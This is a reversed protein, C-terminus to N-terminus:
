NIDDKISDISEVSAAEGLTTGITECLSENFAQKSPEELIRYIYRMDKDMVYFLNIKLINRNYAYLIPKELEDAIKVLDDINKVEYTIKDQDEPLADVAVLRSSHQTLIKQIQKRKLDLADPQTTLIWLGILLAVLLVIGAIMLRMSTPNSPLPVEVVDKLVETTIGEGEKLISFYPNGLPIVLTSTIPQTIPGYATDAVMEGEISIRLEVPLNVKSAEIIAKALTNYQHYDIFVVKQLECLDQQEFSTNPVLEFNKTWIDKKEEQQINYGAMQATIGYHGKVKAAESGKFNIKFNVNISKIFESIYTEGEYLKETEYLINPILNVAYNIDTGSTYEYYVKEQQEVEINKREKIAQMGLGIIGIVILASAVYKVMVPMKIKKM